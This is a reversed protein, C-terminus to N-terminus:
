ARPAIKCELGRQGRERGKQDRRRGRRARLDDAGSGSRVRVDVPVLRPLGAGLARGDLLLESSELGLRTLGLDVRVRRSVLLEGRRKPDLHELDSSTHSLLVPPSGDVDVGLRRKADEDDTERKTSSRLADGTEDSARESARLLREEDTETEVLGVGTELAHLVLSGRRWGDPGRRPQGDDQELSNETKRM